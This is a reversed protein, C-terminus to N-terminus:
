AGSGIGQSVVRTSLVQGAADLVVEIVSGTTDRVQRVTQGLSNTTQSVVPLDSINGAVVQGLVAGNRDLTREIINGVSDVTRLVTQGLQNVTQALLNGVTSLLSTLIQPNNDITTLVREIIARVNELCVILQLQAQVGRITINVGEIEVLVGAQLVVLSAVRADLDLRARLRDVELTIEQVTLNPVDLYVDPQQGGCNIQIRAGTQAPQPAAQGPPTQTPPAQASAAAGGACLAAIVAVAAVVLRTWTGARQGTRYEYM